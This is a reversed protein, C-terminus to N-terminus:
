HSSSSRGLQIDRPGEKYLKTYLNPDGVVDLDQPERGCNQIVQSVWFTHWRGGVLENRFESRNVWPKCEFGNTAAVKKALIFLRSALEEDALLVLGDRRVRKALAWYGNKEM